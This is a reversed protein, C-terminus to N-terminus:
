REMIRSYMEKSGTSTLLDLLGRYLESRVQLNFIAEDKKLGELEAELKIKVLEQDKKFLEQDKKFSGVQVVPGRLTM